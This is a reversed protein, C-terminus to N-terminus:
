GGPCPPPCFPALHAALWDIAGPLLRRATRWDHRGRPDFEVGVALGRQRAVYLFSDVQATINFQDRGAYGVFMAVEGPQAEGRLVMEIPNGRSIREVAEPGRGFLPYVIQRVRIVIVCYFRAVPERGRRVDERWGWCDPDFPAFYRGHCDLWRVNLPPHVGLCAGFEPRYKIALRFATAGGGSFGALVHAERAPHVPYHTLVFGWVDQILYDEFPGVRSNLWLPNVGFLTPRDRFNGNPMAILLPPLKGGAIAADFLELGGERIFSGEDQAVGHLWVLVPYARGPDFGPPVYVYLDRREGLAASWIRRDAGHKNTHDIVRGALRANLRELDISRARAGSSAVLLLAALAWAFRSGHPARLRRSEM